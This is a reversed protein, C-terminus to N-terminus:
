TNDYRLALMWRNSFFANTGADTSRYKATITTVDTLSKAVIRTVSSGGTSQCRDVDAAAAAGVALAMRASNGTATDVDALTGFAILYQGRPLNTLTPGTTALNTYTTSNTSESTDITDAVQATFQSFGVVQSIPLDFGSSAVKDIMWTEFPKPVSFLPSKLAAFLQALFWPDVDAAEIEKGFEGGRIPRLPSGQDFASM